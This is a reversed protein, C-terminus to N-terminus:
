FPDLGNIILPLAPGNQKGSLLSDTILRPADNTKM